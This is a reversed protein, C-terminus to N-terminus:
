AFFNVNELVYVFYKDQYRSRSQSMIYLDKQKSVREAYSWPRLVYGWPELQHSKVNLFDFVM